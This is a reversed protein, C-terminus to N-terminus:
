IPFFVWGDITRIATYEAGTDRDEVVTMVMRPAPGEQVVRRYSQAYVREGGSRMDSWTSIVMVRPEVPAVKKKAVKVTKLKAAVAKPPAAAKLLTEHAGMTKGAGGERYVVNQVKGTGITVLPVEPAAVATAASKVPAAFSV